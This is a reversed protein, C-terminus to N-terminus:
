RIGHKAGSKKLWALARDRDGKIDGETPLFTEGTIEKLAWSVDRRLASWMKWKSEWYSAPPNSAGDVSAPAPAQLEECLTRVVSRDRTRVQGFYRVCARTINENKYKRFLSAVDKHIKTYGLAGLSHIVNAYVKPKDERLAKNKFARGLVKTAQKEGPFNALLLAASQQVMSERALYLGAIEDRKVLGLEDAEVKSVAKDVKTLKYTLAECAVPLLEPNDFALMAEIAVRLNRADQSKKAKRHSSLLTTLEDQKATRVAEDALKTEGQQPPATTSRPSPLHTSASSDRTMLASCVLLCALLTKRDPSIM